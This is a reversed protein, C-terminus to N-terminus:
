EYIAFNVILLTATLFNNCCFRHLQLLRTIYSLINRYYWRLGKIYVSIYSLYCLLIYIGSASVQVGTYYLCMNSANANQNM